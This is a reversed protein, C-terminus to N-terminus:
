QQDHMFQECVRKFIELYPEEGNDRGCNTEISAKHEKL